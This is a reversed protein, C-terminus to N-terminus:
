EVPVMIGAGYEEWYDLFVVEVPSDGTVEFVEAVMISEGPQLEVDLNDEEPVNEPPFGTETEIGDQFGYAYINSWFSDPADSTNTYVAYVRLIKEGEYGEVWEYHDIAINCAGENIDMSEPMDATISPETVPAPVFDAPRGSVNAPDIQVSLTADGNYDVITFDIVGGQDNYSYLAVCRNTVGPLLNMVSNGEYPLENDYSSYTTNLEYGEQSVEFETEYWASTMSDSTNTFDYYVAFAPADESDQFLEVGVVTITGNAFEASVPEFAGAAPAEETPTEEAPAAGDKSMYLIVGMLDIEMQGDGITGTITDSGDKMEITNGDITYDVTFKDGDLNFDAKGNANLVVTCPETFLMDAPLEIGETEAAYCTYTGLLAEDAKAGGCACLGLVMTLVLLIAILKKM